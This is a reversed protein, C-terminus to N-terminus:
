MAASILLTSGAGKPVDLARTWRPRCFHRAEAELWSRAPLPATSHAVVYGVALLARCVVQSARRAVHQPGFTGTDVSVEGLQSEAGEGCLFPHGSKGVQRLAGPARRFDLFQGGSGVLQEMQRRAGFGREAELNADELV